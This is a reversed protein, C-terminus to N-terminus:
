ASKAHRPLGSAAEGLDWYLGAMIATAERFESLLIHENPAHQSCAAYSHPIWITPLGLLDTFLDNCISGGLSPLVAPSTGATREIAAAAWVVWPHDPETRTATFDIANGPPPPRIAVQQFGQADLHRRLGPLFEDRRSGAVFRIQCHAWARSPVANVPREPNGTKFALVEFSNWGYVKEAASLGPEGWQPDIEPAGEGGDITIGHLAARVAESLPPPRWEEVVIRGTPTVLTALAHSLIIGPNALLGGWNGSHHGGERLEVLLDFNKAGRAGLFITPREPSVRPGDSAIFVEAAFAELNAEIIERLGASGNEEGTEIMFKANFGLRGRTALVAALAAMNLSHQGKNDATGRGYLRDGRRVTRWPSLGEHWQEEYGRIVDGHGYGLVTPLSEGERREALLVPGGGAVPNEFLCCAFGMAEFAPAMEESLYRRLDPLREPNQSETPIAIRRDLDELFTGDDFAALARAIAADRSM